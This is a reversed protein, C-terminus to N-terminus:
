ISHDFIGIKLVIIRDKLRSVKDSWKKSMYCNPVGFRERQKGKSISSIGAVLGPVKEIM